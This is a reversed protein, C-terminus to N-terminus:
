EVLYIPNFFRAESSLLDSYYIFNAPSNQALMLKDPDVLLLSHSFPDEGSDGDEKQMRTQVLDGTKLDFIGDVVQGHIGQSAAQPPNAYNWFHVVNEWAPSGGYQGGYWLSDMFKRGAVDGQGSGGFGAWICQSTYNACNGLWDGADYFFSNSVETYLAAYEAAKRGDYAIVGQPIAHNVNSVPSAPRFEEKLQALMVDEDPVTLTVNRFRSSGSYYHFIIKWVGDIQKLRMTHQSNVALFPPYAIGKEGTITFHVATSDPTDLGRRHWFEMRGDEAEEQYTITYPYRQTEVYSLGYESILRRRMALTELWVLENLPRQQEGDVLYSIDRYKMTEYIDYQLSFYHEVTEEMTLPHDPEYIYSAESEQKEATFGAGGQSPDALSPINSASNDTGNQRCAPLPLLLVLILLLAAMRNM